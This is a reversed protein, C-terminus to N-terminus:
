KSPLRWYRSDKGWVIDLASPKIITTKPNDQAFVSCTLKYFPQYNTKKKKKKM